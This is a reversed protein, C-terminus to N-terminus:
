RRSQTRARSGAPPSPEAVHSGLGIFPSAVIKGVDEPIWHYLIYNPSLLGQAILQGARLKAKLGFKDEFVKDGSRGDPITGAKAGKPKFLKKPGPEREMQNIASRVAGLSEGLRGKAGRSL